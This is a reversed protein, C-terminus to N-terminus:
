RLRFEIPLLVWMAVPEDGRRAPEFRWQRVAGAAAQDLDSHGASEQVIVEGVRGDILVHVALVTTGQIGQRRAASPYSPRLQYGGRPRAYQSINTTSGVGPVAAVASSGSGTGRGAVGTGASGSSALPGAPAAPGSEMASIVPAQRDAATPGAPTAPPEPAAGLPAAHAASRPEPAVTPEPPPAVPADTVSPFPTEIPRPLQVPKPRPPPPPKREHRQPVPPEPPRPEDPAVLVVDLTPSRWALVIPVVREALVLAAVLGV